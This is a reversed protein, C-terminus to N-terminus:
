GCLFDLLERRLGLDHLCEVRDECLEQWSLRTLTTRHLHENRAVVLGGLFDHGVDDGFAIELGDLGAWQRVGAVKFRDALDVDM